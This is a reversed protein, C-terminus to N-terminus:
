EKYYIAYHLNSEDIVYVGSSTATFITNNVGDEATSETIFVDNISLDAGFIGSGCTYTYSPITWDTLCTNIRYLEWGSSGSITYYFKGTSTMFGKYGVVGEGFITYSRYGMPEFKVVDVGSATVALVVDGNGHIYRIDVDTLYYHVTLESFEGLCNALNYPLGTSGSICTKAIYKIGSISTGIFVYDDNAWVTNFGGSYTVFAYKLESVVDYIDLGQNTAAYVYNDDTWIQYLIPTAVDEGFALIAASASPSSYSGIFSLTASSGIPPTYSM